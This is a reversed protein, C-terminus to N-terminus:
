RTRTRMKVSSWSAVPRLCPFLCSPVCACLLSVSVSVCISLSVSVSVFPGRSSAGPNTINRMGKCAPPTAFPPLTCRIPIQKVFRWSM